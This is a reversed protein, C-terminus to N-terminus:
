ARLAGGRGTSYATSPSVSATKYRLAPLSRADPPLYTSGTIACPVTEDAGISHLREARDTLEKEAGVRKTTRSGEDVM